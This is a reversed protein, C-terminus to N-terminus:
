DVKGYCKKGICRFECEFAKCNHCCKKAHTIPCIISCKKNM